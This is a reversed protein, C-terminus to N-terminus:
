KIDDMLKPLAAEAAIRGCEELETIHNFDWASFGSTEPNILCNMSAPDPHLLAARIDDIAFLVDIPNKLQSHTKKSTTVDVGIVYDAGLEYATRVPLNEVVGGDVLLHDDIEVPAFLVPFAASARVARAVSGKKLVIREGNEIDCAIAAFKKPLEEITKQGLLKDIYAEMKETSFLGLNPGFKISFDLVNPWKMTIFIESLEELPIGAAYGAGVLAGASTGTVITPSIGERELLKLVGIHAVGRIAGGSLAIGINGPKRRTLKNIKKLLAEWWNM